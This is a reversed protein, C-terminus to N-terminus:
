ANASASHALYAADVFQHQTAGRVVRGAERGVCAWCEIRPPWLIPVTDALTRSSVSAQNVHNTCRHKMYGVMWLFHLQRALYSSVSGSPPRVRTMHNSFAFGEERQGVEATKGVLEPSNTNNFLIDGVALENGNTAAVSKVVDLNIKGDRDVNMPRLHAVGSGDSSHAGSAFGPSVECGIDALSTRQWGHPLALEAFPYQEFAQETFERV